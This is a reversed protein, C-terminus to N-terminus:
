KPYINKYRNCGHNKGFAALLKISRSEHIDRGVCRENKKNYLKLLNALM